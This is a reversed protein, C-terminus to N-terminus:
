SQDAGPSEAQLHLRECALRVYSCDRVRGFIKCAVGSVSATESGAVGEWSAAGDLVCGVVVVVVVRM